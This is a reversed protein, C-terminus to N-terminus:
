LLDARRFRGPTTCSSSSSVSTNFFYVLFIILFESSIRWSRLFIEWSQLCFSNSLTCKWKEPSLYFLYLDFFSFIGTQTLVHSVFNQHFIVIIWVSIIISQHSLSWCPLTNQSNSVNCGADVADLHLEILHVSMLDCHGQVAASSDWSSSLWM